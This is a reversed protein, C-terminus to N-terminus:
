SLAEKLANLVIDCSEKQVICHEYWGAFLEDIKQASSREIFKQMLEYCEHARQLSLSETYDEEDLAWISDSWEMDEIEGEALSSSEVGDLAGQSIKYDMYMDLILANLDDRNYAVFFEPFGRMSQEAFSLLYQNPDGIYSNLYYAGAAGEDIVSVYEYTQEMCPKAPCFVMKRLANAQYAPYLSVEIEYMGEVRQAYKEIEHELSLPYYVEIGNISRCRMLPHAILTVANQTDGQWNHDDIRELNSFVIDLSNELHLDYHVPESTSQASYLLYQEAGSYVMEESTLPKTLGVQPLWPSTNFLNLQYNNSPHMPSTLGSYAFHIAIDTGSPLDQPFHVSVYDGEQAFEAPSGNVTVEAVKLGRYLTFTQESCTSQVTYSNDCQVSLRSSAKIDISSATLTLNKADTFGAPLSQLDRLYYWREYEEARTRLYDSYCALVFNEQSYACSGLVICLVMFGTFLIHRRKSNVCLMTLQCLLLVLIAKTLMEMWLRPELSLGYFSATEMESLRGLNLMSFFYMVIQPIKITDGYGSQAFILMASLLPGTFLWALLAVIYRWRGSFVLGITLGLYVCILLPFFFHLLIYQAAYLYLGAPAAMYAYLVCAEVLVVLSTLFAIQMCLIGKAAVLVTRGNPLAELNYDGLRAVGLGIVYMLLMMAIVTFDTNCIMGMYNRDRAASAFCAFSFAFTGIFLLDYIITRYLQKQLVRLTKHIYRYLKM